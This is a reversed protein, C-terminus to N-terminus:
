RVRKGAYRDPDVVDLHAVSLGASIASEMEGPFMLIEGVQQFDCCKFACGQHPCLSITGASRVYITPHCSTDKSAM